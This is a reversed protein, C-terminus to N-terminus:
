GPDCLMFVGVAALGIAGGALATLPRNPNTAVQMYLVALDAHIVGSIAFGVAQQRVTWAPRAEHVAQRESDPRFAPFPV